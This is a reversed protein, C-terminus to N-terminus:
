TAGKAALVEFELKINALDHFTLILSDERLRERIGGAVRRIHKVMFKQHCVLEGNLFIHNTSM